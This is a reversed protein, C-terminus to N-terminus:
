EAIQKILFLIDMLEIYGNLNMDAYDPFLQNQSDNIDSILELMLIIDFLNLNGDDNIDGQKVINRINIYVDDVNNLKGDSVFLRFLMQEGDHHVKPVHVYAISNNENEIIASIGSLQKWQYSLDNNDIDSSQYGNLTLRTGEDVEQDDGANAIPSDNVANVTLEFFQEFIFDERQGDDAIISFVQHGSANDIATIEIQKTINNINISVWNVSMPNIYYVVQENQEDEPVPLPNISIISPEAFDENLDLVPQSLKFEPPDNRSKVNLIFNNIAKNNQIQRDDATITFSQYGNKNPISSITLQGTLPHISINAFDVSVPIMTYIIRQQIEDSPVPQPTIILTKESLFDELLTM